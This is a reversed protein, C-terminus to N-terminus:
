ILMTVGRNMGSMIASAIEQSKDSVIVAMKGQETGYLLTDVMKSSVFTAILGYLAKEIDNFAIASAALVSFNIVMMLQGMPMYPFKLMLLRSIIDTGGTTSGRMFIIGLGIGIFVGGFLAALLPDGEYIPFNAFLVDLTLTMIVLSKLTKSVFGMGLFKWALLLLPVNILLNVTGIPIHFFYNVITAVGSAGGPAILAPATFSHIGVSFVASGALDFLCDILFEKGAHKDPMTNSMMRVVKLIILFKM